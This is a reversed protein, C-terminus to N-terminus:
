KIFVDNLIKVIENQKEKEIDFLKNMLKERNNVLYKIKKNNETYIDISLDDLKNDELTQQIKKNNQTDIIAVPIAGYKYGLLLSHMRDSLNYSANGYYKGAKSLILQGEILQSQYKKEFHEFLKECFEKDETVQFCFILKMKGEFKENLVKLVEECENIVAQQKKEDKWNRFNIIVEKEYNIKRPENKLYLWSMDPCLKAKKIGLSHCLNLSQTDRVFYNNIFLSRIKETFGLAKSVPGISQGIRIIKVGFLRYIPFIIGAMINRTCKKIGGGYNHGLGSVIFIKNRNKISKKLITLAFMFENKCKIKEDDNIGLEKIFYDPIARSCNCQLKGYGRLTDILAKNILVDGTNTFKTKTQYFIYNCM